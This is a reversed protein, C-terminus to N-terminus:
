PKKKKLKRLKLNRFKQLFNKAGHSMKDKWELENTEHEDTKGGTGADTKEHTRGNM